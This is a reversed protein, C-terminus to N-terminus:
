GKLAAMGSETLRLTRQQGDVWTVLGRERLHDAHTKATSRSSIQMHCCIDTLTPPYGQGETIEKIATLCARQRKTVKM